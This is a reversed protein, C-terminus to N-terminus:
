ELVSKIVRSVPNSGRPPSPAEDRSRLLERGIEQLRKRGLAARVQPFCESEEEEMHHEVSEILVTVKANFREDYPEMGALEGLLLDAVHHEEYSELVSAELEPVLERVRPYMVADEIFTHRTLLEIIRDAAEQRQATETVKAREFTRFARRIEAHEDKLVVIADTSM